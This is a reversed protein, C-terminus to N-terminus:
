ADMFKTKVAKNNSCMDQLLICHLMNKLTICYHLLVAFVFLISWEIYLCLQM